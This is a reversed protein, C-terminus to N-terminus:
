GWCAVWSLGGGGTSGSAVSSPSSFLGTSTGVAALAFTTRPSTIVQVPAVDEDIITLGAFDVSANFSDM